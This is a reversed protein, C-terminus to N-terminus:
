DSTLGATGPAGFLTLYHGDPDAFTATWQGEATAQRPERVITVGKAALERCAAKVGDSALVIETAGAVPQRLKALGANLGIMVAGGDLFTLEDEVRFVIRRGLTEEYFAVSRAMDTVGIMVHTVGGTLANAM